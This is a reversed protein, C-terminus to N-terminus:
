LNWQGPPKISTLARFMFFTFINRVSESGSGDSALFKLNRNTEVLLEKITEM